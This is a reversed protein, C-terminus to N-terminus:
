MHRSTQAQQLQATCRHMRSDHPRYREKLLEVSQNQKERLSFNSFGYYKRLSGRISVRDLTM